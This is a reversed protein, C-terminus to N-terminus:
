DGKYNRSLLLSGSVIMSVSLLTFIVVTVNNTYAGEGTDPAILVPDEILGNAVGSLDYPGGDTLSYHVETETNGGINVTSFTAGNIVSYAKTNPNYFQLQAGSTNILRSFILTVPITMGPSPCYGDFDLLNSLKTYGSDTPISTGSLSQSNGLTCGSSSPVSITVWNGSNSELDLVNAQYSDQIGDGNADGNNPVGTLSNFENSDQLTPYTSSTSWTHTFDWQSFPGNTTSDKFYAPSANSVNEATVGSSCSSNSCAVANNASLFQDYYDNSFTTGTNLGVFGGDHGNSSGTITTASFSNSITGGAALGVFPGQYDSGTYTYAGASYVNNVTGNLM